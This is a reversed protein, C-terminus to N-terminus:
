EWRLILNGGHDAEVTAGPPVVTTSDTQLIIAPGAITKDLPLADRRYFPTAVTALTDDVRFVCPATKIPAPELGNGAAARPAAIRPMRGIATVRINVIEIPSAEFVHGYEVRHL